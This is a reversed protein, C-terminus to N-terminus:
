RGSPSRASSKRLSSGSEGSLASSARWTASWRRSCPKASSAVVILLRKSEGAPLAVGSFRVFGASGAFGSSRGRKRVLHDRFGFLVHHHVVFM